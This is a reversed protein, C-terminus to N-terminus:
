DIILCLTLSDKDHSKPLSSSGQFELEFAGTDTVESLDTAWWKGGGAPVLGVSTDCRALPPM